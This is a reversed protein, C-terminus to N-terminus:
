QHFHRRKLCFNSQHFYHKASIATANSSQRGCITAYDYQLRFRWVELARSSLWSFCLAFTELRWHGLMGVGLTRSRCDCVLVSYTLSYRPRWHGAPPPCVNHFRMGQEGIATFISWAALYYVSACLKLQASM